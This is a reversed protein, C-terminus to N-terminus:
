FVPHKWPEHYKPSCPKFPPHASDQGNQNGESPYDPGSQVLASDWASRWVGPRTGGRCGPPSQLESGWPCGWVTGERGRIDTCLCAPWLARWALAAEPPLGVFSSGACGAAATLLPGLGWCPFRWGWLSSSWLRLGFGSVLEGLLRM